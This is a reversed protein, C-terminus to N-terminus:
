RGRSYTWGKVGAFLAASAPHRPDFDSELRPVLERLEGRQDSPLPTEETAFALARMLASLGGTPFPVAIPLLADREEASLGPGDPVSLRVRELERQTRVMEAWLAEAEVVLAGLRRWQEREDEHLREAQALAVEYAARALELEVESRVTAIARSEKGIEEAEARLMAAESRLAELADATKSTGALGARAADLRLSHEEVEIGALREAIAGQRAAIEAARADLEALRRAQEDRAKERERITAKTATAATM